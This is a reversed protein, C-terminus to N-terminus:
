GAIRLVEIHAVSLEERTTLLGADHLL